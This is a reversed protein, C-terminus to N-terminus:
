LWRELLRRERLWTCVLGRRGLLGSGRLSADILAGEALAVGLGGLLLRLRRRCRRRLLRRVCRLGRLLLSVLRRRLRLWLRRSHRLRLLLLWVLWLHASVGM